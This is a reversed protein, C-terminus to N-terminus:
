RLLSVDGKMEVADPCSRHQVRLIYYYTGVDAPNGGFAGDWGRKDWSYVRQGWRNYISFSEVTAHPSTIVPKLRDNRGDGNPTFASPVAAGQAQEVAPAGLCHETRAACGNPYAVELAFCYPGGAGVTYTTTPTDAAFATGGTSWTLTASDPPSLATLRVPYSCGEAPLLDLSFDVPPVSRPTLTFRLTDLEVRCPLTQASYTIAYSTTGVPFFLLTSDNPRSFGTAPDVAITGTAPIRLSITDGECYVTDAPPQLIDVDEVNVTAAGRTCASDPVYKWFANYFDSVGVFANFAIGGFMWLTQQADTWLCVGGMGPPLNAPSAVGLTGFSAGAGTSNGSVRTWRATTTNYAWLDNAPATTPGIISFGGFVWFVTDCLTGYPLRAAIRELSASPAIAPDPMCYRATDDGITDTAAGAIGGVWAWLNTSPRYRWVDQYAATPVSSFSSGGSVYFQGAADAWNTYSYRGGPTATPTEVGKPGYVAPPAAAALVDGKMWTWNNTAGDYRWVDDTEPSFSFGSIRSGSFMWLTNSGRDTWAAISESRAEPEVAPSPVGMTGSSPSNSGKMWTWQGSPIDYRWLLNNIGTPANSYGDLMWLGGATDTWTCNHFSTSGPTNLPSPVGMTGTAPLVGYTAAPGGMWTWLGSVPDFKWLDAYDNLAGGVLDYGGYMWFTGDKATWFAASYRAPPINSPSAVGQVGYSGLSGPTSSGGM